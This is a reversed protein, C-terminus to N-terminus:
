PEKGRKAGWGSGASLRWRGREEELEKVGKRGKAM